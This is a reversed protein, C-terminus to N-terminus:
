FGPSASQGSDSLVPQATLDAPPPTTEQVPQTLQSQYTTQSSQGVSNLYENIGNVLGRAAKDQFSPDNLLVEESPNTMFATEILISPMKTYKIVLFGAKHVGMDPTGLAALLNKQMIKAFQIRQPDVSSVTPDSSGTYYYVQTGEIRSKDNANSHVSVFLNANEQNAIAVRGNLTVFTDDSRTLVVNYGQQELLTKAKLVIALNPYKEWSGSYGQAGPDNGGHGADLVIKIQGPNGQIPPITTSGGPISTSDDQSPQGLDLPPEWVIESSPPTTPTPEPAPVPTTVPPKPEPNYSEGRSPTPKDSAYVPVALYAALYAITGKVTKVKYWDKVSGLLTLTQGKSVQGKSAAKTSPSSRLNAVNTTIKVKNSKIASTQNSATSTGVKNVLSANVWGTTGNKLKIKYWGDDYNLVSVTAGQLLTGKKIYQSGPGSRINVVSGTIKITSAAAIEVLSSSLLLLSLMLAIFFSIRNKRYIISM